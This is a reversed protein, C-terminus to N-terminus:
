GPKNLDLNANIILEHHLEEQRDESGENYLRDISEVTRSKMREWVRRTNALLTEELDVATKPTIIVNSLPIRKGRTVTSRPNKDLSSAEFLLLIDELRWPVRRQEPAPLEGMEHVVLIGGQRLSQILTNLQEPVDRFPVHHLTNVLLIVDAAMGGELFRQRTIAIANAARALRKITRNIPEEVAVYTTSALKPASALGALVRGLGAGYDVLVSGSRSLREQVTSAVMEVQIDGQQCPALEEEGALLVRRITEGTTMGASIWQGARLRLEYDIQELISNLEKEFVNALIPTARGGSWKEVRMLHAWSAALFAQLLDDPAERCITQVDYFGPGEEGLEIGAVRRLVDDAGDFVSAPAGHLLQDNPIGGLISEWRPEAQQLLAEIRIRARKGIGNVGM